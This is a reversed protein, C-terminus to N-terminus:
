GAEAGSERQGLLRQLERVARRGTRPLGAGFDRGLESALTRRRVCERRAAIGKSGQSGRAVAPRGRAALVAGFDARPRRKRPDRACRRKGRRGPARGRLGGHRIPTRPWVRFAGCDRDPDELNSAPILARDPGREYLVRGDQQAVVLVGIRADKLARNRLAADLRASLDKAAASGALSLALAAAILSRVRHM